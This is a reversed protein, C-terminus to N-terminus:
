EGHMDVTLQPVGSEQELTVSGSVKGEEGAIVFSEGVEHKPKIPPAKEPDYRCGTMATVALLAACISFSRM